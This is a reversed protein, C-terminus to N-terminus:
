WKGRGGRSYYGSKGDGRENPYGRADEYRPPDQQYGRSGDYGPDNQYSRDDQYSRDSQYQRRDDQYGRGHDGQYGGDDRFSRDGEHGRQDDQYGRDVYSTRGGRGWEELSGPGHRAFGDGGRGYGRGVGPRPTFGAMDIEEFMAARIKEPSDKCHMQIQRLVTEFFDADEAIRRWNYGATPPM